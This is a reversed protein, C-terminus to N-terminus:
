DKKNLAEVLTAAADNFDKLGSVAAARNAKPSAYAVALDHHAKAFGRAAAMPDASRLGRLTVNEVVLRAEYDQFLKLRAARPAGPGLLAADNLSTAANQALRASAATRNSIAQATALRGATGVREMVYPMIADYATLYDRIRKNRQAIVIASLLQGAVGAIPACNDVKTAKLLAGGAAFLETRAKDAGAASKAGALDELADVYDGLAKAFAPLTEAGVSAGTLNATSVDLKPLDADTLSANADIGVFDCLPLKQLARYAMDVKPAAYPEALSDDFAVALASAVAHCNTDLMVSSGAAVSQHIASRQDAELGEGVSKSLTKLAVQFDGSAQKLDTVEDNLTVTACGGLALAALIPFMFKM